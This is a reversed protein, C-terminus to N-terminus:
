NAALREALARIAADSTDPLSLTPHALNGGLIERIGAALQTADRGQLANDGQHCQACVASAQTISPDPPPAPNAPPEKAQPAVAPADTSTPGTDNGGCGGLSLPLIACVLCLAFTRLM